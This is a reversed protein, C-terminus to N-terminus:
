TIYRLDVVNESIDFKLSFCLIRAITQCECPRKTGKLFQFDKKVVSAIRWIANDQTLLIPKLQRCHFIRMKHVGKSQWYFVGKFHSSLSTEDEGVNVNIRKMNHWKFDIFSVLVNWFQWSDRQNCFTAKNTIQLHFLMPLPYQLRFTHKSTYIISHKCSYFCSQLFCVLATSPQKLIFM